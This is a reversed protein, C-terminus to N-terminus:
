NYIRANQGFLLSLTGLAQMDLMYGTRWTSNNALSGGEVKTWPFVTDKAHDRHWKSPELTPAYTEMLQGCPFQAGYSYQNQYFHCPLGDANPSIYPVLQWFHQNDEEEKTDEDYAIEFESSVSIVSSGVQITKIRKAAPENNDDGYNSLAAAVSTNYRFRILVFGPYEGEIATRETFMHKPANQCAIWYNTVSCKGSLSYAAVYSTNFKHTYEEIKGVQVMACIDWDDTLKGHHRQTGYISRGEESHLYVNMAGISKMAYSLGDSHSSVRRFCIVDTKNTEGRGAAAQKKHHSKPIISGNGRPLRTQDLDVM